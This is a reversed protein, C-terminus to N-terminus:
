ISSTTPCGYRYNLMPALSQGGALLKANELSGLLGIAESLTSPDHYTFPSPKM